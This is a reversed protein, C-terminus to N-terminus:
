WGRGFPSYADGANISNYSRQVKLDFGGNGPLFFDVYHLELNGNFPDVHEAFSQNVYDRGPYCGPGDFHTGPASWAISPFSLCVGHADHGVVRPRMAYFIGSMPPIRKM